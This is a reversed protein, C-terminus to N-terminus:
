STELPSVDESSIYIFLATALLAVGLGFGWRYAVVPFIGSQSAPWHNIVAGMLHQFVAAGLIIFFNLGTMATGAMPLSFTEKVHSYLINHSGFGVGILWFQLVLLGCPLQLDCALSSCAILMAVQGLLLPGKRKALRDSFRGWLPASCIVGVPTALLVSGAAAKSLGYVHMLYPGGWLGQVAILTGYSALGLPAIRWFRGNALVTRLPIFFDGMAPLDPAKADHRLVFYLVIGPIVTLIGM